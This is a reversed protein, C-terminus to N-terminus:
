VLTLLPQPVELVLFRVNLTHPGQSLGSTMYLQYSYEVGAVANNTPSYVPTIEDGEDISITMNMSKGSVGDVVVGFIAIVNATFTLSLSPIALSDEQLVPSCSLTATLM